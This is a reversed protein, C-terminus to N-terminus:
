ESQASDYKERIKARGGPEASSVEGPTSSVKSLSSVVAGVQNRFNSFEPARGYRASVTQIAETAEEKESEEPEANAMEGSQQINTDDRFLTSTAVVPDANYTPEV